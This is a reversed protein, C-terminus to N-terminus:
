SLLLIFNSICLLQPCRDSNTLPAHMANTLTLRPRLSRMSIYVLTLLPFRGFPVTHAHKHTFSPIAAQLLLSSTCSRYLKQVGESRM